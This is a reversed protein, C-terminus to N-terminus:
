FTNTLQYVPVIVALAITGIVLGIMLLMVPEIFSVLSKVSGEVEGAYFNALTLLIEELHGSKESIAILNGMVVPIAPERKFAEGVTLGKAIGEEGIRRLAAKLEPVSVSDSTVELSEIIPLGSSLLSSFTAAFRQLSVERIVKKIVPLRLAIDYLTKKGLTTKTFFFLGGGTILVLLTLLIALHDGIFLGVAFIVRSFAPPNLGGSMFVNAIKPLSFSVLLILILVSAVFLIVPYTLASKIKSTLEREKELSVSLESFVRELNGSVEGAKILNVFVPSFSKPYKTFTTYFPMGRELNTRIEILLNKVIPKDFDDILINIARFLDTGVRLMLSLYKTIFVKDELTIKQGFIKKFDFSVSKVPKLTLPKLNSAAISALAEPMGVAELDAEIIKGKPDIAKYHFKM